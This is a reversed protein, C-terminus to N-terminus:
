AAKSALHLDLAHMEALARPRMQALLQARKFDADPNNISHYAARTPAPLYFLLLEELVAIRLTMRELESLPQMM